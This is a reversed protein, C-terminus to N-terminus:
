SKRMMICFFHWIQHLSTLILIGLLIIYKNRHPLMSFVIHQVINVLKGSVTAKHEQKGSFLMPAPSTTRKNSIFETTFFHKLVLFAKRLLCM